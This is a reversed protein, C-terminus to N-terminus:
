GKKGEVMGRLIEAGKVCVPCGCVADEEAMRAAPLLHGYGEMAEREVADLWADVTMRQVGSGADPAGVWAYEYPIGDPFNLTREVVQPPPLMTKGLEILEANSPILETVTWGDEIRVEAWQELRVTRKREPVANQGCFLLTARSPANKEAEAAAREAAFARVAEAQTPHNKEWEEQAAQEEAELRKGALREADRRAKLFEVMRVAKQLSNEATTRYRQMLQLRQLLAASWKAADESEEMLAREVQTYARETRRLRWAGDVVQELQALDGPTEPEYEILWQEWLADYDERSEGPLIKEM